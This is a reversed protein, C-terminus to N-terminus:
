TKITWKSSPLTVSACGPWSTCASTTSTAGISRLAADDAPDYEIELVSSGAYAVACFGVATPRLDFPVSNAFWQSLQFPLAQTSVDGSRASSCQTYRTKGDGSWAPFVYVISVPVSAVLADLVVM